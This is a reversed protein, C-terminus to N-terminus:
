NKTRKKLHNAFISMTVSTVQEIGNLMLSFQPINKEGYSFHSKVPQILQIARTLFNFERYNRQWFNTEGRFHRKDKAAYCQM